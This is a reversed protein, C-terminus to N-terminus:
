EIECDARRCFGSKVGVEQVSATDDPTFLGSEGVVIIGRENDM